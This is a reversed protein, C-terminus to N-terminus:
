WFSPREMFDLYGIQMIENNAIPIQNNASLDPNNELLTQIKVILVQTQAV